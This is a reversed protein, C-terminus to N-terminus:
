RKNPFINFIIVITIHTPPLKNVISFIIYESGFLNSSNIIIKIARANNNNFQAHTHVPHQQINDQLVNDYHNDQYIGMPIFHLQLHTVVQHNIMQMNFNSQGIGDNPQLQLIIFIYKLIVNNTRLMPKTPRDLAASITSYHPCYVYLCRLYNGNIVRM